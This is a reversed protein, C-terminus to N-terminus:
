ETNATPNVICVAILILGILGFWIPIAYGENTSLVGYWNSYCDALDIFSDRASKKMDYLRPDNCNFKLFHGEVLEWYNCSGIWGANVQAVTASLTAVLALKPFMRTKREKRCLPKPHIQQLATPLFIDHWSLLGVEGKYVVEPM